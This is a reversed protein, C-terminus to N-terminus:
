MAWAHREAWGGLEAAESAFCLTLSNKGPHHFVTLFVYLAFQQYYALNQHITGTDRSRLWQCLSIFSCYPALIWPESVTATSPSIRGRKLPTVEWRNRQNWCFTFDQKLSVWTREMFFFHFFLRTPLRTSEFTKYFFFDKNKAGSQVLNFRKSVFSFDNSVRTLPLLM